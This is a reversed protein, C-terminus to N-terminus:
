SQRRISKLKSAKAIEWLVPALFKEFSVTMMEEFKEDFMEHIGSHHMWAHFLEHCVVSAQAEPELDTSVQVRSEDPSYLGDYEEGPEGGTIKKVYDVQVDLGMLKIVM